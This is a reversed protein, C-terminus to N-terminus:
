SAHRLAAFARGGLRWQDQVRLGSSAALEPLAQTGLLTWSFWSSTVGLGELRVPGAPLEAGPHLEVLLEGAPDLLEAMRTLMRHVDGGIGVNGDVLLVTNWRGAGPVASFVDGLLLPAGADRALVPISPVLELGLVDIGRAHLAATLRGPGCGVDLVPGRVRDLLHLDVADPAGSWRAVPLPVLRGDACRLLRPHLDEGGATETLWDSLVQTPPASAIDVPTATLAAGEGLPLM